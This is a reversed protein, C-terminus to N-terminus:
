ERSSKVIIKWYNKGSAIIHKGYTYKKLSHPRIRTILFERQQADCVDIIKQVVCNAYQDKMM